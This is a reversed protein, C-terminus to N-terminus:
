DVIASKAVFTATHIGAGLNGPLVRLQRGIVLLALHAAIGLAAEGFDGAVRSGVRRLRAIKAPWTISCLIMRAAHIVRLARIIQVSHFALLASIARGAGTAM